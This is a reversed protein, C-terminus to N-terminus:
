FSETSKMNSYCCQTCSSCVDCFRQNLKWSQSSNSLIKGLWLFTWKMPNISFTTAWACVCHCNFLKNYHIQCSTGMVNVTSSWCFCCYCCCFACQKVLRCVVITNSGCLVICFCQQLRCPPMLHFSFSHFHFSAMKSTKLKWDFTHNSWCKLCKSKNM